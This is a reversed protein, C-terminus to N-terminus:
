QRELRKARDFAVEVRPANLLARLGAQEVQDRTAGQRIARTLTDVAANRDKPLQLRALRLRYDACRRRAEAATKSQQALLAGDLFVGVQREGANRLYILTEGRSNTQIHAAPVLRAFDSVTVPDRRAIKAVEIRVDTFSPSKAPASATGRVVIDGLRVARTTDRREPPPREQALGEGATLCAVLGGVALRFFGFNKNRERM